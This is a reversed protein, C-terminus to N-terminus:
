PVSPEDGVRGATGVEAGPAVPAREWAKVWDIEFWNASEEKTGYGAKPREGNWGKINSESTFLLFEPVKSGPCTVDTAVLKGNFTFRYGSDDWEVGYENWQGGVPEPFKLHSTRHAESRYSGWHLAYQYGGKMLGTTEMIDIEVGDEAANAPDGSKGYTPSQAWFAVQTGPQVSFRCRAVLKGQKVLFKKRTTVFGCHTVGKDDTFTTIRLLGDKLDVAESSNMSDRRPGTEVNWIKPNLVHGDFNEELKLQWASEAAPLPVVSALVLTALFKQIM